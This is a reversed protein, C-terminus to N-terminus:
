QGARKLNELDMSYSKQSRGEDPEPEATLWIWSVKLIWSVIMGISAFLAFVAGFSAFYLLYNFITPM